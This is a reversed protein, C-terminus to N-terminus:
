SVKINPNELTHASCVNIFQKKRKNIQRKMQTRSSSWLPYFYLKSFGAPSAPSIVHKDAHRKFTTLENIYM